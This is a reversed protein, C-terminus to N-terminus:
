REHDSKDQTKPKHPKEPQAMAERIKGLVSEKAQPLKELAALKEKAWAPFADPSIVGLIDSRNWRVKEGSDLETCYVARGSAEPSCGFGGTALVLQCHQTRYEPALSEERIVVVKGVLDESMGGPICDETTLPFNNLEGGQYARDLALNDLRADIRHTFERMTSLYDSSTSIKQYTAILPNDKVYDCVMYPEDSAPNEAFITEAGGLRISHKVEYGDVMRPADEVSHEAILHDAFNLIGDFDSSYDLLSSFQRQAQEDLSDLKKALDNLESPSVGGEISDLADALDYIKSEYSEVFFIQGGTGDIGANQLLKAIREDSTPFNITESLWEKNAGSYCYVATILPDHDPEPEAFVCYEGPIDQPGRYIEEFVGVETLYGHKTFVGGEREAQLRGYAALDLSSEMDVIYSSFDKNILDSSRELRELIDAYEDRAMDRHFEGYQEASFAPQLDFTDLNQAINIVDSLSNCHKKAEIVAFFTERGAESIEGLRAALYNLENLKDATLDQPLRDALENEGTSYRQVTVNGDEAGLIQLTAQLDDSKTPFGVWWGNEFNSDQLYASIPYASRNVDYDFEAM